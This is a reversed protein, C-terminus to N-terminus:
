ALALSGARDNKKGKNECSLNKKGPDAKDLSIKLLFKQALGSRALLRKAQGPGCKVKAWCFNFIKGGAL